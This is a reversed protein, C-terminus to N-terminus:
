GNDHEEKLMKMYLDFNVEQLMRALRAGHAKEALMVTAGTPDLTFKTSNHGLVRIIHAMVRRGAELKMVDEFDEEISM